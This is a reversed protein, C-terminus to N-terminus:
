SKGNGNDEANGGGQGFSGYYGAVSRFGSSSYGQVGGSTQSGGTAEVCGAYECTWISHEGIMGGAFSLDFILWVTIIEIM